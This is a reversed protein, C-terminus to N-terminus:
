GWHKSSILVITYCLVGIGLTLQFGIDLLALSALVGALGSVAGNIAWAWPILGPTRRELFRMGAAFPIGM